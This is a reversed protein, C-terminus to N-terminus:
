AFCSIAMLAWDKEPVNVPVLEGTKQKTFKSADMNGGYLSDM